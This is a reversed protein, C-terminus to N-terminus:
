VVDSLYQGAQLEIHTCGDQSKCGDVFSDWNKDMLDLFPQPSGRETYRQMYEAKLEKAPYVLMYPINNDVLAQRVVDHSSVMVFANDNIAVKIHEIYNAPFNDKPFKSSDSDSVRERTSQFHSKGIGPFGSIVYAPEQATATITLDINM